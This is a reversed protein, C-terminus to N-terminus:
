LKFFDRVANSVRLVEEEQLETHIPLSLVRQSLEESVDLTVGDRQFGQYAKQKHLPVPYYIVSPIGLNALHEKLSDRLDCGGGVRITYQHFVHTSNKKRKPIELGSIGMLGEDYITAVRNRAAEYSDLYRLKVSLVAAQIGDLRSNVGVIDHYYQKSQGHNAIMRLRHAIADDHTFIAGGDGFAGLNKSPFFSTTGIHGICGTRVKTGDTFSYVAGMAQANDEVVWLQYKEAINMISEMDASQGFLHVPVIARTKRTISAEIAAANLTFDSADVDIMVPVLGLLVLVEATAVYTFSPVLVEDGPELGLAMFALQLADTGNGCSIVHKVGLYSALQEEFDRVVRGKVFATENIVDQIASDIESKIRLYQGKLDVMPMQFNKDM